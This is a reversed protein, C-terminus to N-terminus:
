YLKGTAIKGVWHFYSCFIEANCNKLLVIMGVEDCLLLGSQKISGKKKAKFRLLHYKKMECHGLAICVYSLLQALKLRKLSMQKM